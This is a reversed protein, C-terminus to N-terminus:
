RKVAVKQSADTAILEAMTESQPGHFRSNLNQALLADNKAGALAKQGYIRHEVGPGQLTILAAAFNMQPNEGNALLAKKVLAYGDLGLAPNPEDKGLWQKYTEALYGADFNAMAAPKSSGASQARAVLKTLLEKAAPPDKRAYLAARRLTEMHVLVRNDANLIAITDVALNKTDYTETGTLNWGASTWPLSKANGIDFVHCVLPPGALTAAAFLFLASFFCVAFRIAHPKISKRNV